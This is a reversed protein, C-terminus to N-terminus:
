RNTGGPKTTTGGTAGGASGSESLYTYAPASQLQEKTLNLVAHDPFERNGATTAAGTTGTGSTGTGGAATRMPETKWQVANFPVAVDKAGIGLFGGVSIVVAKANGSNDLLVESIDGIKENNPGYVDLGMFKSARWESPMQKTMFQVSGAGASPQASSQSPQSPTPSTQAYAPFALAAAGIALVAIRTKLM